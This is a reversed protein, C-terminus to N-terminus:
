AFKRGLFYKDTVAAYRYFIVIRAGAFLAFVLRDEVFLGAIKNRIIREDSDARVHRIFVNDHDQCARVAFSGRGGCLIDGTFMIQIFEVPLQCLSARSRCGGFVILSEELDTYFISDRSCYREDTNM